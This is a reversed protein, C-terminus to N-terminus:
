YFIYFSGVNVQESVIPDEIETSKRKMSERHLPLEKQKIKPTQQVVADEQGQINKIAQNYYLCDYYNFVLSSTTERVNLLM